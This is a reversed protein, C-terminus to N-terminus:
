RKLNKVVIFLLANYFNSMYSQCSRLRVMRRKLILEVIKFAILAVILPNVILLYAVIVTEVFIHVPPFTCVLHNKVKNLWKKKIKILNLYIGTNSVSSNITGTSCFFQPSIIFFIVCLFDDSFTPFQCNLLYLKM